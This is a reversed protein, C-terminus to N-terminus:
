YKKNKNEINYKLSLEYWSRKLNYKKADMKDLREKADIIRRHLLIIMRKVSNKVESFKKIKDNMDKIEKESKKIDNVITIYKNNYLNTENKINIIEFKIKNIDKKLLSINNDNIESIKKQSLLISLNKYSNLNIFSKNKQIIDLEKYSDFISEKLKIIKNKINVSNSNKLKYENRIPIVYDKKIKKISKIINPITKIDLKNYVKLKKNYIYKIIKENIYKNKHINLPTINRKNKNEQKKNNLIIKDISYSKKYNNIKINVNNNKNNNSKINKTLNIQSKIIKNYKHCKNATAETTTTNGINSSSNNVKSLILNNVKNKRNKNKPVKINNTINIDNLDNMSIYKDKSKKVDRKNGQKEKLNESLLKKKFKDIKLRRNGKLKFSSKIKLINNHLKNTQNIMIKKKKPKLPTLFSTSRSNKLIYKGTTEFVEKIM